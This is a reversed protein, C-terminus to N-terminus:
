PWPGLRGGLLHNKPWCYLPSTESVCKRTANLAPVLIRTETKARKLARSSAFLPVRMAIQATSLDITGVLSVGLLLVSLVSILM